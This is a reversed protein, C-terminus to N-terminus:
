LKLQIKGTLLTQMLGRKQNHIHRHQTRLTAIEEDFSNIVKVIDDQEKKSPMSIVQEKIGTTTLNTFIGGHTASRNFEEKMLLFRYYLFEINVDKNVDKFGIFGDHICADVNLISPIGIDGSCVLVLTGKSVPRSLKAGEVTLFDVNPTVYKGDRTVDEVMLRPIRGGYYKPDGKPRPSSGRIVTTIEQLQHKKWHEGDFKKFRIKGTLLLHMADRKIREKKNILEEVIEIATDWTELIGAIRTQEKKTPILIKLTALNTKSIGYVKSGTALKKIEKAIAPNKLIYTRFGQVTLGSNDRAVFTHLGGTAKRSKINKIELNAAVGEYDESADAILLDGDELFPVTKSSGMGKIRPINEEKDFDLMDTKYTAHIDGYHINFIEGEERDVTLQDRSLALSQVFEFVNGFPLYKWGKPIEVKLESKNAM